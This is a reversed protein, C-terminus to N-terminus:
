NDINSFNDLGELNKINQFHESSYSMVLTGKVDDDNKGIGEIAFLCTSDGPDTMGEFRYTAVIKLEEPKYLRDEEVAKIGDVTSIFQEKYGFRNLATIAESLTEYKRVENNKNTDM